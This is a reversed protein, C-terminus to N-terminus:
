LPGPPVETSGVVGGAGRGGAGPSPSSREGGRGQCQSTGGQAHHNSHSVPHDRKM